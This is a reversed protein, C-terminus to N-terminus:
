SVKKEYCDEQRLRGTSPNYVHAVMVLLIKYRWVGLEACLIYYQVFMITAVYTHSIIHKYYVYIYYINLYTSHNYPNKNVRLKYYLSILYPRNLWFFDQTKASSKCPCNPILMFSFFFSVHFLFCPFSPVIM